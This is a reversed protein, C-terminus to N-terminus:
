ADTDYWVAATIENLSSETFFESKIKDTDM